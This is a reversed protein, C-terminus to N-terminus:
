VRERCSARGIESVLASTWICQDALMFPLKTEGFIPIATNNAAWVETSSPWVDLDSFCDALTKPVSSNRVRQRCSMPRGKWVTDNTPLCQDQGQQVGVASMM